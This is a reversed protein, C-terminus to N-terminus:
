SITLPRTVRPLTQMGPICIPVLKRLQQIFAMNVGVKAHHRDRRGRGESVRVEPCERKLKLCKRNYYYAAVLASLLAFLFKKRHRPVGCALNYITDDLGM